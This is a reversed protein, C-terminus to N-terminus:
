NSMSDDAQNALYSFPELDSTFESYNEVIARVLWGGITMEQRLNAKFFSLIFETLNTEEDRNIAQGM